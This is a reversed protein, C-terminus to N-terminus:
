VSGGGLSRGHEALAARLHYWAIMAGLGNAATVGWTTGIAGAWVAGISGGTVYAASTALQTLLSRRAVGMARLGAVAATLLCAAAVNLTVAPLLHSTPVWLEGLLLRGPGFPLVMLLVMGWALAATAQVSGLVLCFQALRGSARHFVRSAEPVAVQSIGMLVVLFPGMLIEASRVYGVSALGAVSGLVFARLQSAGSSSVNEVLYRLSLGRHERMWGSALSPRPLVRAQLSGVCGALSATGGFALLCRVPSSGTASHHIAALTLVLLVAWIVDNLLASAGRHAAFFSFRWSDQLMLGPLGVGLAVFVPGVPGPLLLGAGVCVGGAAVGVLLATAAAASTATRWKETGAGSYRVLLPDTSMGRSANIVVAYTVYALTFAGFSSAGTSRAVYLGLAFNSLSSVAQDAVGWGLRRAVPLLGGRASESAPTTSGSVAASVSM